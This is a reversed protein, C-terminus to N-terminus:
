APDTILQGMAHIEYRYSSFVDSRDISRLVELPLNDQDFSVRRREYVIQVRAPLDPLDQMGLLRVEDPEPRRATIAEEARVIHRGREAYLDFITNTFDWHDLLDQGFRDVRLFVTQIALPRGDGCRLRDICYVFEEVIRDENLRFALRVWDDVASASVCRATLVQTSPEMGLERRVQQRFAVIRNEKSPRSIVKTGTRRRRLIIGGQELEALAQRVTGRSVKYQEALEEESSLTSGEAIEGQQIKSALDDKIWSHLSKGNQGVRKM